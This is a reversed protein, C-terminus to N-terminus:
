NFILDDFINSIVDLCGDNLVKLEYCCKKINDAITILEQKANVECDMLLLNNSNKMLSDITKENEKICNFIKKTIM